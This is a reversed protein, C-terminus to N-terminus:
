GSKLKKLDREFKTKLKLRENESIILCNNELLIIEDLSDSSNLIHIIEEFNEIKDYHIYFNNVKKEKKELNSVPIITLGQLEYPSIEIMARDEFFEFGLKGAALLTNKDYLHNPPAYVKPSVGFRDKIIKNGKGILKIQEKLSKQKCYLGFNEHWSDPWTDNERGGNDVFKKYCDKCYHTYGQQGLVIRNKKILEKLVGVIKKSYFYDPPYVGNKFVEHEPLLLVPVVSVIFFKGTEALKRLKEGDDDCCELHINLVM